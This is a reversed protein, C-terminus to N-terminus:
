LTRRVLPLNPKHIGAAVSRLRLCLYHCNWQKVSLLLHSHRPDESIVMLNPHGPHSHTSLMPWFKAYRWWYHDRRWILSFNEHSPFRCVFLCFWAYHIFATGYENRKFRGTNQTFLAANQKFQTINTHHLLVSWLRYSVLLHVLSYWRSLGTRVTFLKRLIPMMM